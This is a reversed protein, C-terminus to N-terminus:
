ERRQKLKAIGEAGIKQKLFLNTVHIGDYDKELQEFSIFENANKAPKFMKKKLRIWSKNCKNRHSQMWDAKQCKTNCYYMKHCGKCVKLKDMKHRSRKYRNNGCYGCKLTKIKKQLRHILTPYGAAICKIQKCRRWSWKAYKKCIYIENERWLVLAFEWCFTSERYKLHSALFLMEKRKQRCRASHGNDVYKELNKYALGLYYHVQPIRNGLDPNLLEIQKRTVELQEILRKSRKKM